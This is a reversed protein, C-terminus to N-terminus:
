ACTTLSFSKFGTRGAVNAVDIQYGCIGLRRLAARLALEPGTDRCRVARMTRSRQEPTLNDGYYVSPESM